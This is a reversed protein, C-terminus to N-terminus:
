PLPGDVMLKDYASPAMEEHIRNWDRKLQDYFNHMFRLSVAENSAEKLHWKERKNWYHRVFKGLHVEEVPVERVYPEYDYRVFNSFAAQEHSWKNKWFSCNTYKVDTPCNIWDRMMSPFQPTNQTIVFGTNFLVRGKTDKQRDLDRGGLIAISTDMKWHSLLTEMPIRLDTIITDADMTVVFKCDELMTMRFQEKVKVWTFHLGEQPSVQVHKFTYGHIKAYIYHNLNGWHTDEAVDLNIQDPRWSRTDVNLICVQERLATPFLTLEEPGIGYDQQLNVPPLSRLLDFMHNNTMPEPTASLSASLSLGAPRGMAALMKDVQSPHQADSRYGSRDGLFFGVSLNCICLLLIWLARWIRDRPWAPSRRQRELLQKASGDYAADEDDFSDRRSLMRDHPSPSDM